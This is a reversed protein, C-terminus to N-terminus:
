QYQSTGTVGGDGCVVSHTNHSSQRQKNSMVARQQEGISASVISITDAIVFLLEKKLAGDGFHSPSAQLQQLFLTPSPKTLAVSHPTPVLLLATVYPHFWRLSAWQVTAFRTPLESWWLRASPDKENHFVLDSSAFTEPWAAKAKCLRLHKGRDWKQCHM